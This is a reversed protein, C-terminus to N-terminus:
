TTRDRCANAVLHLGVEGAGASAPGAEEELFSEIRQMVQEFAPEGPLPQHNRSAFTELRADPIASAIIRGEEYPVLADLPSHLVLAPCRVDRLDATCDYQATLRHIMAAETPSCAMRQLQNYSDQQEATAGPFAFSTWIQRLASNEKGWGDLIVRSFAEVNEPSDSAEGRRLSGRAYGGIIVLRSVRDPHRSAYRICVCSGQSRGLLALQQLGAADVVAELDRVEDDLTWAPVGRDSLGCGRGDYRVLRNRRSLRQLFEGFVASRWDRDLHTMWQVARVLAAGEGSTAYAIRIGGASTTFRVRQEFHRGATSAGALRYGRRPETRVLRHEEDDLARRLEKICQVLSDDTVVLDAWVSRILDEKKVLNGSAQALCHLVAATQPRLAIRRGAREDLLERRQLDYAFRSFRITNATEDAM